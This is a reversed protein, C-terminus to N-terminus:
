TRAPERSASRALATTTGGVYRSMVGDFRWQAANFYDSVTQLRESIATSAAAQVTASM